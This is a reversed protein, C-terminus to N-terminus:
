IFLHTTVPKQTTCHNNCLDKTRSSVHGFGAAWWSHVLYAVVRPVYSVFRKPYLMQRESGNNLASISTVGYLLHLLCNIVKEILTLVITQWHFFRPFTPIVYGRHGATVAGTMVIRQESARMLLGFRKPVNKGTFSHNHDDSPNTSQRPKERFEAVTKNTFNVKTTLCVRSWM